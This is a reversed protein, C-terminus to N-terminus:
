DLGAYAAIAGEAEKFRVFGIGVIVKPYVGKRFPIEVDDVEGYKM